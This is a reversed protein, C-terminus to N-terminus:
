AALASTLMICPAAPSSSAVLIDVNETQESCMVMCTGDKKMEAALKQSNDEDL